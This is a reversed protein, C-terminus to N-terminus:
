KVTGLESSIHNTEFSTENIGSTSQKVSKEGAKTSAERATPTSRAGIYKEKRQKFKGNQIFCKGFLFIVKLVRSNYYNVEELAHM